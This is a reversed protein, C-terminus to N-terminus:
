YQKYVEVVLNEVYINATSLLSWYKNQKKMNLVIFKTLNGILDEVINSM